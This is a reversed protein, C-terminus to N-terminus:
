YDDYNYYPLLININIINEITLYKLQTARRVYNTLKNAYENSSCTYIIIWNSKLTEKLKTYNNKNFIDNNNHIIYEKDHVNNKDLICCCLWYFTSFMM